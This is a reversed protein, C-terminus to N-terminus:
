VVPIVVKLNRYAAHSVREVTIKDSHLFHSLADANQLLDDLLKRGSLDVVDIGFLRQRRLDVNEGLHLFQDMM